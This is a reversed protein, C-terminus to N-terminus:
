KFQWSASELKLSPSCFTPPQHPNKLLSDPCKPPHPQTVLSASNRQNTMPLLDKPVKSSQTFGPETKKANFDGETIIHTHRSLQLRYCLPILEPRYHSPYHPYIYIVAIIYNKKKKESLCCWTDWQWFRPWPLLPWTPGYPNTQWTQLFTHLDAAYRFSCMTLWM